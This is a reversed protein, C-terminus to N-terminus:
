FSSAQLDIRERAVPAPLFLSLRGMAVFLPIVFLNLSLKYINEPAQVHGNCRLSGLFSLM